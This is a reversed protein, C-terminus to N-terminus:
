PKLKAVKCQDPFLPQKISLSALNCLPIALVEAGDKLFKSDLGAYKSTDLCALSSKVNANCLEVNHCNKKINMYYQKM